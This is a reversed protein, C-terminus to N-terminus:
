STQQHRESNVLDEAETIAAILKDGLEKKQEASDSFNPCAM